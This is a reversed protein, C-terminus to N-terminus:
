PLRPPRNEGKILKLAVLSRQLESTQQGVKGRASATIRVGVFGEILLSSRLYAGDATSVLLLPFPRPKLEHRPHVHAFSTDRSCVTSIPAKKGGSHRLGSSANVHM